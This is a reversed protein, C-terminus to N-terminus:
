SFDILKRFDRVQHRMLDFYEKFMRGADAGTDAFYVDIELRAEVKGDDRSYMHARAFRKQANWKNMTDASIGGDLIYGSYFMVNGCARDEARGDKECDYLFIVMKYGDIVTSIRPQGKDDVSVEGQFGMARLQNLVINATIRDGTAPRSIPSPQPEAANTAYPLAAFALVTAAARILRLAPKM